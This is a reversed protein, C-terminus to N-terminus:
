VQLPIRLIRELEDLGSPNAARIVLIVDSVNPPIEFEMTGEFPVQEETMWGNTSMLPTQEIIEGDVTRLEASMTAEFFWTGPARGSIEMPSTIQTRPLPQDIDVSPVFKFTELMLNFEDLYRSDAPFASIVYTDNNHTLEVSINVGLSEIIRWTAEQGAVIVQREEVIQDQPPPTYRIDSEVIFRRVAVKIEESPVQGIPLQGRDFSEISSEEDYSEARFSNWGPPHQLQYGAVADDFEVWDGPVEVREENGNPRPPTEQDNNLVQTYVYFGVFSLGVLILIIMVARSIM